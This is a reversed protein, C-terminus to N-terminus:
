TKKVCTTDITDIKSIRDIFELKGIYTSANHVDVAKFFAKVKDKFDTTFVLNNNGVNDLYEKKFLNLYASTRTIKLVPIEPKELTSQIEKLMKIIKYEQAGESPSSLGGQNGEAIVESQGSPGSQNGEAIVETTPQKSEIIPSVETINKYFIYKLENIDIYNDANDEKKVVGLVCILLDDLKNEFFPAIEKFVLSKPTKQLPPQFCNTRPPCYDDICSTDYNPLYKLADKNRSLILSQIYERMEQITKNIFEGEKEDEDCKAKVIDFHCKYKMIADHTKVAITYKENIISNFNEEKFKNILAIYVNPENSNLNKELVVNFFQITYEFHKQFWNNINEIGSKFINETYNDLYMLICTLNYLTQKFDQDVPINTNNNSNITEINNNRINHYELISIRDNKPEKNNLLNAVESTTSLNTGFSVKINLIKNIYKDPIKCSRLLDVIYELTISPTHPYSILFNNIQKIDEEFKLAKKIYEEINNQM